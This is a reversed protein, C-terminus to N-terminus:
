DEILATTGALFEKLLGSGTLREMILATGQLAPPNQFVPPGANSPLVGRLRVLGGMFSRYRQDPNIVVAGRPVRV